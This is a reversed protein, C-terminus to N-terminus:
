QSACQVGPGGRPGDEDDDDEQYAHGRSGGEERRTAVYDDMNVEEVMEGEPIEISPKPPLLAEIKKITEEDAFHNEPFKVDFKIFLSGREYPNRYVPMGEGQVVKVAGPTIVEGPLHTVVIDRGDLHQFVMQFGCLAETIGVSHTMILDDRKRAFVDHESQQLVIVVDGPEVGPAQDGEGRFPIRQGDKMGKDVPVELIKTEQVTKKGECTNCRDKESIMEGEGKCDPCVSQMQQVMGPGLQRISVKVGRGSCTKCSVVAGSKGGQGSCKKCIVNKRMQLKSTKGNFLDELSVKLPHLTDEGKAPRRRGGGRGGMGGGMGMGGMGGMGGFPMGFFGGMGGMGGGGGGFLHEFIDPMDGGQGGERLGQLGVRDYMARKEPNSLVEYAYSVEKFKDGADPNKDPHLEKALKRYSKKIETDSANRSVGLIEYLKNDAM